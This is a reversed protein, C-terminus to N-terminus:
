SVICKLIGAFEGVRVNIPTQLGIHGSEYALQAENFDVFILSAKELDDHCETIYYLGIVMDQSPSVIPNGSAPSLCM